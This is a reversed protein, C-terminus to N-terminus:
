ETEDDLLGGWDMLMECVTSDMSSDALLNILGGSLLFLDELLFFYDEM